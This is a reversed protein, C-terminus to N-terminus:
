QAIVRQGIFGKISEWGPPYALNSGSVTGSISNGPSYGTGTLAWNRPNAGGTMVWRGPNLDPTVGKPAWTTVVQNPATHPRLAIGGFAAGAATSMLFEDRNFGCQWGVLNSFGQSALNGAGASVAGAAAGGLIGGGFTGAVAAGGLGLTLGAVGGSIAGTVAGQRWDGGSAHAMIGGIIAGGVAGVAGAILTPSEGDPDFFLIPDNLVYAYLNSGSNFLIPDRALWRGILPEYDRAGFRLLGTDRDHLGGAFGFPQFGPNTDLIVRGFEDYDMEQVLTNTAADVILRPSGLRDAIVRYTVGGKIIYDPTNIRTAYVFRSLVSGNGDLEAVPRLADQWLFRQVLTGNVKKGIRRNQGDTLYDIKRGDPLDVHKLNGLVDYQYGTVATGATKSTLEGNATYAYTAGAYSLLRDQDDYTGTETGGPTTRSTRNGNADYAYSSVVAGNKKVEILRGATDYGYDYTHAVVGVTEKKQIIRGLKDRAYEAKLLPSSNYKAEYATLEGFGNYALTDKVNGLTTGTLLGNQTSRALSLAGAKTLLGDADYEYAIAVGGNLGVSALRFNDDYGYEVSGTVSGSWLTRALLAGSYTYDLKGGDPAALSALKGTASDYGFDFHGDPVTLRSLRGGADYSYDLTEGDPRTVRTLQQDLNYDYVTHNAGAGVDPPTYEDNLDISTYRFRHAPRGPPALSALNGNKDYAFAIERNDPLIQRTVRGATDYEFSVTRGLPDTASELYGLANYAFGLTRQEAGTGQTVAALRGLADFSSAVPLFGKIEAQVARGLADLVASSQRGAPTTNAVTRTAVTYVSNFLRGNATAKQTLRTLSFPNGPDTLEATQEVTSLLTHGGTSIQTRAPYRASSFRPDTALDTQVLSGDPIQATTSGDPAIATKRWTGDPFTLTRDYGGDARNVTRYATNRGLATSRTVEFGGDFEALALAQFGKAANEDKILRGSDDYTFTSAFGRPNEFRTLLGTDTYAMRFAEGAPNALSALYGNADFSVPNSQGYPGVIAMPLGLANRQVATINGHADTIETLRGQADYGFSLLTAGTLANLTSRHRGSQDFRYLLNGNESAVAIDTGDFGPLARTIHLIQNANERAVYLGGDPAFSISRPYELPTQTAFSGKQVPDTRGNGAATGIRGDSGVCRIRHNSFDSVCVSGGRTITLGRLVGLRAERAPGGDGSYGARGNGAFTTIRGDTGIRRIRHNGSDAVFINGDKDFSIGRPASLRALSAPGGDGSYGATGDGAATTVIGDTGVMRVRHNGTDSLYLTGDKGVALNEVGDFRAETAPGDDGGYGRQGNGAVTTIIGDPGIRRVRYNLFDAVYVSGDKGIALGRPFRLSAQIAPGGDGSYGHTGNGAITSIRGDPTVKRVRNNGSDAIYLSGDPGTAIERPFDFAAETAPGGDGSFGKAASGAGISAVPAMFDEARISGDGTYLKRGIPDYSHHVNFTWGGLTNKGADWTNLKGSGDKWLTVEQRARSGEIPTGALRSFAQQFGAPALYVAEYVYGVRVQVPHGGQQAQGYPNLGDWEFRVKKNGNPLVTRSFQRGAVTVQYEIRKLSAPFTRDRVTVVLGLGGTRGPMRRSSYHLTFPTGTLPVTEGLAQTQCEIISGSSCDPEPGDDGPGGSGVDVDDPGRADDPPGYPWNCDWPTFHKMPVRWLVKGATHHQALLEREADTIGLAPDNDASGNGDTDLEARGNRIEVIKVIRGNASPVWAAKEQDYYGVPVSMGVPFNLFNDVYFLIPQNFEVSKAGASIAEDVSLEMAYTYGSAGPLEGPMTNQGNGGVTFETSRVSLQSLPTKSGDPLALSAKTGAPFLALTRRTGSADTVANGVAAQMQSSDMAVVTVKPDVPLLVVDETLAFDQWPVELTRQATLYGSAAFNVTLWGGGNVTLDFRGDARSLTHGFEPHDKITVTARPLPQNQKDLVRGRIVAARKAEITQGAVGTQVANAGTYLFRTSDFTTAAVTPDPPPAVTAPNPPLDAVPGLSITLDVAAGTQVASGATLSQGLVIGDPTNADNRFALTGLALGAERISAEAAARTLGALNPAVGPATVNIRFTQSTEGGRGDQVRVTVDHGGAQGAAPIWEILGTAPDIAMGAPRTPLSFIPTDGDVDTADVNYSYGKGVTAATVPQTTIEPPGQNPLPEVLLTFNQVAQGGKGDQVRISVPHSGVQGASPTWEIRGTTGIAMGAPATPLSYDLTDGDGDTAALEYVYPLTATATTPPTSALVPNRNAVGAVALDFNQQAQGGKGDQVRISVPHSGIQGASPTWEIRGTNGIAMGAPATPLSYGLADGDGDAAVVQYAYAVGATATAPPVSTILPDRNVQISVTDPESDLKGDNVILQAVYTGGTQPVFTCVQQSSNALVANGGAPQSLLSWRYALTDGDVDSSDKGDLIVTERAKRGAQDPGAKAVPKSNETDIVVSDPDSDAQGDNVVLSIEYRGARDLVLSPKEVAAASLAATSGAPRPGLTWQYALPDGDVDSSQSGDLTVTANVPATQDPGAHAVPRSNQTSITVQDPASDAIRDNVVLEATYDGPLDVTFGSQVGQETNLAALSASPKDLLRWRYALLHGDLDTSAKGDLTIANGVFATQDPGANAVPARNPALLGYPIFVPKFRKRGPNNFRLVIKKIPKRPDLRSGPQSLTIWPGPTAQGTANALTVNPALRTALVSLPGYVPKQPKSRNALTLRTEYLGTKRNLKVATATVRVQATLAVGIPEDSYGAASWFLGFYAWFVLVWLSFRPRM